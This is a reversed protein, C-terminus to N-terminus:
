TNREKLKAEIKELTEYSDVPGIFGWQEEDTLGVWEKKVVYEGAKIQVGNLVMDKHITIKNETSM